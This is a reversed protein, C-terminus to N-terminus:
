PGNDTTARSCGRFLNAIRTISSRHLGAVDIRSDFFPVGCITFARPIAGKPVAGFLERVQYGVALDAAKRRPIWTRRRAPWMAELKSVNIVHLQPAWIESWSLMDIDTVKLLKRVYRRSRIQAADPFRHPKSLPEVRFFTESM